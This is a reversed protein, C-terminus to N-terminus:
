SCAFNGANTRMKEGTGKRSENSRLIWLKAVRNLGKLSGVQDLFCISVRFSETGPHVRAMM